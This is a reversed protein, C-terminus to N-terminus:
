AEEDAASKNEAKLELSCGYKLEKPKEPASAEVTEGTKPQEPTVAGAAGADGKAENAAAEQEAAKIQPNEGERNTCCVGAAQGM